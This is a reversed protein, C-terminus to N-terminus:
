ACKGQFLTEVVRVVVPVGRVETEFLPVVARVGPFMEHIQKMYNKQMKVRNLVFQSTGETLDDAGIAGNVIVGGVPIGFDNFWGTFRKM